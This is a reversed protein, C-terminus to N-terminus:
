PTPEGSLARRAINIAEGGTLVDVSAGDPLGNAERTPLGAINELAGALREILAAAEIMVDPDIYEPQDLAARADARLREATEKISPTM